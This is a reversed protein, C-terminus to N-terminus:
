RKEDEPLMDNLTDRLRIADERLIRVGIHFVGVLTASTVDECPQLLLYVTEAVPETM